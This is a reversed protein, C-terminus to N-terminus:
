IYIMGPTARDAVAYFLSPVICYGVKVWLPYKAVCNENIGIIALM